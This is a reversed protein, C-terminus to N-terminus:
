EVKQQDAPLPEDTRKTAKRKPTSEEVPTLTPSDNPKEKKFQGNTFDFSLSLRITNDLPNRQITTPVLYSFYLSAISWKVSAGLTLFQRGGKTPDEYFYGTRVGIMNKYYYELGVGTTIEKMEEGAGGPADNFSAFIGQVSSKTKFDPIGDNNKDYQSKIKAAATGYNDYLEELPVPTPVLLKNIDLYAGISHLNNFTFKYGVGIGMNAPIFDKVTGTTYNIKSGLNSFNFGASVDHKIKDNNKQSLTKHYLLSIDGAGAIGPKLAANTYATGLNSYIMRLTVGVSLDKYLQRSYGFDIAFEQPRGSGAPQGTEDKFDINGLSFYRIGAHITQVKKIRYYGTLQALYIDNVLSKLWPSFSIGFGYDSEIFAMKAGNLQAGNADTSTAIGVDGMGGSRTDNVIRLFPVATTITNIIEGKSTINQSYIDKGFFLLMACSAIKFFSKGTM